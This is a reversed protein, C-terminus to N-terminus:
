GIVELIKSEKAGTVEYELQIASDVFQKVVRAEAETVTMADVLYTEKVKKIKVGKGNDVEHHMTVQVEFYKAM